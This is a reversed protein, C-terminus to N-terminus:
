RYVEELRTIKQKQGEIYQEDEDRVMVFEDRERTLGEYLNEKAVELEQVDQTHRMVLEQMRFRIEQLELSIDECEGLLQEKRVKEKQLRETVTNSDDLMDQINAMHEKMQMRLVLNYKELSKKDALKEAVVQLQRDMFEDLNENLVKRSNTFDLGRHVAEARITPGDEHDGVGLSLQSDDLITDDFSENGRTPEDDRIEKTTLNKTPVIRSVNNETM